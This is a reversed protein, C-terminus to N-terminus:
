TKGRYLALMPEVIKQAVDESSAISFLPVSFVRGKMAAYGDEFSIEPTTAFIKERAYIFEFMLHEFKTYDNKKPKIDWLAGAIIRPTKSKKSELEVDLLLVRLDDTFTTITTGGQLKTQKDPVFFVTFAKGLWNEVNSPELGTSKGSTVGYGGPRGIVFEEEQIAKIKLWDGNRAGVYPADRRKSIIGELGM